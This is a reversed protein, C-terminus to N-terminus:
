RMSVPLELFSQSYHRLFRPAGFSYHAYSNSANEYSIRRNGRLKKEGIFRHTPWHLTSIEQKAAVIEKM